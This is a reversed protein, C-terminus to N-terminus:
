NNVGIEVAKAIDLASIFNFDISQTRYLRTGDNLVLDIFTPTIRGTAIVENASNLFAQTKAM